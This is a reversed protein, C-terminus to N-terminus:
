LFMCFDLCARQIDADYQQRRDIESSQVGIPVDNDALLCVRKLQAPIDAMFHPLILNHINNGPITVQHEHEQAENSLHIDDYGVNNGQHQHLFDLTNEDIQQNQTM